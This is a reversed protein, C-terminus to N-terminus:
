FLCIEKKHNKTTKNLKHHYMEYRVKAVTITLLEDRENNLLLDNITYQFM